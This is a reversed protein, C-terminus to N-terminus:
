TEPYLWYKKLVKGTKKNIIVRKEVKGTIILKQGQKTWYQERFEPKFVYNENETTVLVLENYTADGLVVIEGQLSINEIITVEVFHDAGEHYSKVIAVGKEDKGIEESRILTFDVNKGSLDSKRTNTDSSKIGQKNVCNLFALLIICGISLVIRKEM